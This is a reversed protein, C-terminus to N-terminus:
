YVCLYMRHVLEIGSDVSHQFDEFGRANEQLKQRIIQNFELLLEDRSSQNFKDIDIFEFLDNDLTQDNHPNDNFGEM